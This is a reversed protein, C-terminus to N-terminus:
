QVEQEVREDEETKSRKAIIEDDDARKDNQELPPDSPSPPPPSPPISSRERKKPNIEETPKAIVETEAVIEGNMEDINALFRNKAKDTDPKFNVTTIIFKWGVKGDLFHMYPIEIEITYTGSKGGGQAKTTDCLDAFTYKRPVEVVKGSPDTRQVMEFQRGNIMVELNEHYTGFRLSEGYKAASEEKEPVKIISRFSSEQVVEKSLAKGKNWESSCQTALDVGREFLLVACERLIPENDELPLSLSYTKEKKPKKEDEKDPGFGFTSRVNMLRLYVTRAGLKDNLGDNLVAKMQSPRADKKILKGRLGIFKVYDKLTYQTIASQPVLCGPQKHRPLDPDISM